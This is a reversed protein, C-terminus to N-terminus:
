RSACREILRRAEGLVEDRIDGGPSRFRRGFMVRTDVNRLAPTLMQVTAALWEQDRRRRRVYVFPNRLAVPSIVGSVIAPVVTLEPVLRAFLEVSESWRELAESAGPLVSPDPEIRGRPFTLVAGGRRMHRTASRVVGHRGRSTEPVTILRRSTNPMAELLAREAAVVLLDERNISAFLAVADALGPHNAVILLPGERPVNEEGEIEVRRAMRQLAWAGGAALGSEGVIEDYVLIQRALRRAPVLFVWEVARRGHRLGGLGLADLM